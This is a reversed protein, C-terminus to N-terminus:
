KDACRSDCRGLSNSSIFDHCNSVVEFCPDCYVAYYGVHEQSFALKVELNCVSPCIMIIYGGSRICRNVLDVCKVWWTNFKCVDSTTQPLEVHVLTNRSLTLLNYDKIGSMLEVVKVDCNRAKLVNGHMLSKSEYSVVLIQRKNGAIVDSVAGSSGISNVTVKRSPSLPTGASGTSGCLAGASGARGVNAGASGTRRKQAVVSGTGGAGASSTSPSSVGGTGRVAPSWFEVPDVHNILSCAHQWKIVDVFGKTFVDAAMNDTKEYFLNVDDSGFGEFLWSVAVRHTRGLHRMVANKGTTCVKIMAQNDEHFQLVVKRGPLRDWLQLGPM